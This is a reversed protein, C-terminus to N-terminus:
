PCPPRGGRTGRIARVVATWEGSYAEAERCRCTTGLLDRRRRALSAEGGGGEGAPPGGGGRRHLAGHRRGGSALGAAQLVHGVRRVLRVTARRVHRRLLITPTWRLRSTREAVHLSRTSAGPRAPFAHRAVRVGFDAVAMDPELSSVVAARSPVDKGRAGARTLPMRWEGGDRSLCTASSRASAFALPSGGGRQLVRLRGGDAATCPLGARAQSRQAVSTPRAAFLRAHFARVNDYAFLRCRRARRPAHREEALHQLRPECLVGSARRQRATGSEITAVTSTTMLQSAASPSRAAASAGFNSLGDAAHYRHARRVGLACRSRSATMMRWHKIKHVSRRARGRLEM